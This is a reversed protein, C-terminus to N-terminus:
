KGGLFEREFKAMLQGANMPLKDFQRAILWTRVTRLATNYGEEYAGEYATEAYRLQAELDLFAEKEQENM